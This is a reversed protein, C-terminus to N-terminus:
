LLGDMVRNMATAVSKVHPPRVIQLHSSAVAHYEATKTRGVWGLDPRVHDWDSLGNELAQFSLLHTELKPQKRLFDEIGRVAGPTGFPLDVLGDAQKSVSFSPDPAKDRDGRLRRGITRWPHLLLERARHVLDISHGSPLLADFLTLMSVSEGQAQLVSAVGYAVIGGLCLGALRYPGRPQVQRVAQVYLQTVQELSPRSATKPDYLLPVHIGIVPTGPTLNQALDYYLQVGLLCLVPTRGPDGSVLSVTIPPQVHFGSPLGVDLTKPGQSSKEIVVSELRDLLREIGIPDYVGQRGRAVFSFGDSAEILEVSLDYPDFDRLFPRYDFRLDGFAVREAPLKHLHSFTASVPALSGLSQTPDQLRVLEAQCRQATTGLDDSEGPLSVPVLRALAGVNHELGLGPHGAIPVGVTTKSRTETRLALHFAGLFVSFPSVNLQSAKARATTVVEASVARTVTQTRYTTARPLVAGPALRDLVGRTWRGPKPSTAQPDMGRSFATYARALDELVVDLSWGDCALRHVLLLGKWRDSSVQHIATRVLPGKLLDFPRYARVLVSEWSDTPGFWEVPLEAVSGGRFKKQDPSWSGRLGRHRGLVWGLAQQWVEKELAGEFDLVFGEAMASNAPDGQLCFEHIDRQVPTTLDTEEDETGTEVVSSEVPALPEGRHGALAEALLRPTSYEEVLQRFSVALGFQSQVVRGLQMLLLSDAGLAMFPRVEEGPALTLGLTRHLIGAVAELWPDQSVEPVGPQSLAGQLEPPLAVPAAKPRPGVVSPAEVFYRSREFPYTPLPVRRRVQGEFWAQADLECGGLWLDGAARVLTAPEDLQPADLVTPLSAVVTRLRSALHQRTLTALVDRPGVELFVKGEEDLLTSIAESFRVPMRMHRGWYEPDAAEDDTLDTGTCTSVIRIQGKQPSVKAMADVFAPVAPEMMASHFAHSTHLLKSVVQHTDLVQVMAEIAELPGAVVCLNPGNTAALQVNAVLLPEVLSAPARVSLMKGPPLDRVLRGRLAVLPVIEELSFHGALTAAVFEGISHGVMASPVIGWSMWLKALAFEITFLAPQTYYTNQLAEAQTKSDDSDPFVVEQLPRELHPRFLEFCADMWYRFTPYRHYLGRGMSLFQSGQGPFLFVVEPRVMPSAPRKALPKELDEAAQSADAAVVFDRHSWVKRGKVLSFAVDALNAGPHTRLHTALRGRLRALAEPTKASLALLQSGVAPDSPPLLPAEELIAHVNTGGFGFSSVAARRPTATRPWPTSASVIRFPSQDFPIKPNPTRFNITGPIVEQDLSLAAKMFGAIGAAITPHGINGKISGLWCYQRKDTTLRFAKTLAEVEIPDGLPTGTGHAEVYGISDASVQAQAQALAIVQAQGEVSPALFSVKNAGDNNKAVGKVVAYIRDGAELADELRRLVVIGAGDCFMTGTAEADFPRCHGDKTFTGGEEYIQGSKQPFHLDVGGALAIDCEWLRLAKVAHDVSLLSSSCGTNASVSPGTLDLHYSVRTAIYDKENGYGVIMPGVTDVLERNPLVNRTFYHNDGVGAYVGIMGDFRSPDYGANELAAWSLELFVRHQPDMAQAELPGIGFFPADFRDADDVIGRTPVYNPHDRTEPDVEALDETNFRTISEVGEVLNSWLTEVDPAGPFRGVLGIVAIDGGGAGRQRQVRKTVEDLNTRTAEDGGDLYAALKEVTPYQFVKVVNLDRHWQRKIEAAMRIALLSHGGLEFFNDRVGVEVLNLLLAWIAALRQQTPGQPPVLDEALPPRPMLGSPLAKRNVKGNPLLPMSDLLVFRGPVMYDPLTRLLFRRLLPVTLTTVDRPVLYGVLIKDELADATAVVVVESVDPYALLASEIEGLEIRFGRLKVQFDLRGLYEIAGDPRYKALDGTKYLRDGAVGFPSAVFREATLEPRNWYGRALGVGGIYLEGEEGEPLPELAESLVYMQTNAIPHGIPVVRDNGTRPCEWFTVDISAETPGYLNHLRTRSFREFFRQTLAYPLAEGSCMVQRLSTLSELGEAAVFLSLMSPVFHMTSVREKQILEVLYASDRHGGPRALVLSAGTILPWFFEWVSVDFSYPTKQLVVDQDTLGYEDQMWLLRNVLGRHVNIVGKPKGTSGSTYIMYVAHEPGLPPDVSLDDQPGTSLWESEDLNVRRIQPPIEQPGFRSQSLVLSPAADEFMMTLRDRPYEPDFPVYAAGAKVVALLAVVMEVSREMYVAVFADERVGQDRLFRAVKNARRHLERYSLSTEEFRVARADPTKSLQQDLFWTMPRDLPYDRQTQNWRDAPNTM